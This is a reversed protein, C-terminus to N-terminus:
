STHEARRRDATTQCAESPAHRNRTGSPAHKRGAGRRRVTEPAEVSEITADLRKSRRRTSTRRSQRVQPGAATRPATEHTRVAGPLRDPNRWGPAHGRAPLRVRLADRGERPRGTRACSPNGTWAAATSPTWRSTPPGRRCPCEPKWSRGRPAHRRRAASSCRAHRRPTRAREARHTCPLTRSPAGQGRIKSPHPWATPRRRPQNSCRPTPHTAAMPPNSAARSEPATESPPHQNGPRADSAPYKSTPKNTRGPAPPPRPAADAFRATSPPNVLFTDSPTSQTRIPVPDTRNRIGRHGLARISVPLMSGRRTITLFMGPPRVARHGRRVRHTCATANHEIRPSGPACANSPMASPAYEYGKFDSYEAREQLQADTRTCPATPHDQRLTKFRLRVPHASSLHGARHPSPGSRRAARHPRGLLTGSPPEPATARHTRGARRGPDESSARATHASAPM